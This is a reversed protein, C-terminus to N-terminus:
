SNRYDRQEMENMRIIKLRLRMFAKVSLSRRPHKSRIRASGAKAADDSQFRRSNEISLFTARGEEAPPRELLPWQQFCAVVCRRLAGAVPILLSTSLITSSWTSSDHFGDIISSKLSKANIKPLLIWSYNLYCLSNLRLMWIELFIIQFMDVWHSLCVMELKGGSSFKGFYSYNRLYM